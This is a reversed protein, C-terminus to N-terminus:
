RQQLISKTLHFLSIMKLELLATNNKSTSSQWINEGFYKQPQLGICLVKNELLPFLYLICNNKDSTQIITLFM